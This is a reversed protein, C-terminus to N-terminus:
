FLNFLGIKTVKRPNKLLSEVISLLRVREADAAINRETAASLKIKLEVLIEKLEAIEAEQAKVVDFAKSAKEAAERSICVKEEVATPNAPPTITQAHTIWTSALVVLIILILRKM